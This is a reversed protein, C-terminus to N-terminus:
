LYLKSNWMKNWIYRRFWKYITTVYSTNVNGCMSGYIGGSGAGSINRRSTCYKIMNISSVLNVYGSGCIGGSMSEITGYNKSFEDRYIYRWLLNLVGLSYMTNQITFGKIPNNSEIISPVVTNYVYDLKLDQQVIDDIAGFKIHKYKSYIDKM